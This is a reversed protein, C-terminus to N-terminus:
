LRLRQPIIRVQKSSQQILLKSTERMYSLAEKKANSHM